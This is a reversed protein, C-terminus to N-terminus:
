TLVLAVKQEKETGRCEPLITRKGHSVGFEANLRKALSLSWVYLEPDCLEHIMTFPKAHWALTGGRVQPCCRDVTLTPRPQSESSM